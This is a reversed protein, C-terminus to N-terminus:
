SIYIIINLNRNRIADEVSRKDKIDQTSNLFAAPIGSEALCDVQDKMLAILPSLVIGTGERILAPIQYCLSKGGGTAIVALVDQWQTGPHNDGKSRASINPVRVMQPSCRGSSSRENLYLNYTIDSFLMKESSTYQVIKTENKGQDLSFNMRSCGSVIVVLLIGPM